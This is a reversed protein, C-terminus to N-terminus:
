ALFSRLEAAGRQCLDLAEKADYCERLPMAMVARRPIGRLAFDRMPNVISKQNVFPEFRGTSDNCLYVTKDIL